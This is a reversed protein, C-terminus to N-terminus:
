ARVRVCMKLARGAVSHVFIAARMRTRTCGCARVSFTQM